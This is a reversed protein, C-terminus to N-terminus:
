FSFRASVPRRNGDLVIRLQFHGEEPAGFRVDTAEVLTAGEPEPIPQMRWVPFQAFTLFARAEPTRRAANVVEAEEPKYFIEGHEPDFERNLDIPYLGWFRETSVYGRWRFPNWLTPWAAVRLPAQGHYNRVRLSEVAREHLVWRGGAWLVLFLLGTIAWGRGAPRTAERGGIEGGVLRGLLPALVSMLLVVMLWPDVVMLLDWSVWDARFPLWVRVGYNNLLDLLLHAWVGGTGVAWAPLLRWGQVRWFALAALLGLLPAVVLAHTLHRHYELYGLGGGWLAVVSDADPLNSAVLLIGTAKPIGRSIGTRGLLVAVLSHTVNDM